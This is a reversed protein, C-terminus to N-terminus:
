ASAHSNSPIVSKTRVLFTRAAGGAPQVRAIATHARFYYCGLWACLNTTRGSIANRSAIGKGKTTEEEEEVEVQAEAEAEVDEEEEKEHGDRITTEPLRRQGAAAVM